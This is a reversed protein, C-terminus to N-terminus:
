IDGEGYAINERFEGEIKVGIKEALAGIYNGDPDQHGYYNRQVMDDAKAQALRTFEPDVVVLRRGLAARIKNVNNVIYSEVTNTNKEILSASSPSYSSLINWM